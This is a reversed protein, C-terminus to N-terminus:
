AAEKQQNLGMAAELETVIHDLEDVAKAVTPRTKDNFHPTVGSFFTEAYAARKHMLTEFRPLEARDIEALAHAEVGSLLSPVDNLLVRHLIPKGFRQGLEVMQNYLKRAEHMDPESLRSPTIIVHAIIALKLMHESLAGALDILVYGRRKTWLDSIFAGIDSDPGKEVTLNAIDRAASNLSYWRWLTETQDFDVIHVPHGRAALAGAISLCSTSKGVGGKPSAFSLIIPHDHTTM